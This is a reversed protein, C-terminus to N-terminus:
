GARGKIAAMLRTEMMQLDAKTAVTGKVLEVIETAIRVAKSREIGADEIANAVTLRDSL